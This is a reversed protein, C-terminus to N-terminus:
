EVVIKYGMDEVVRHIAERDVQKPDFEIKLRAKQYSTDARKVGPLEELALDINTACSSCHMKEVPLELVTLGGDIPKKWFGFM